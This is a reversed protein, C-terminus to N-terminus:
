WPGPLTVAPFEAAHFRESKRQDTQGRARQDGEDGEPDVEGVSRRTDQIEGAPREPRDARLHAVVKAVVVSQSAYRKLFSEISTPATRSSAVSQEQETLPLSEITFRGFFPSVSLPSPAQMIDAM